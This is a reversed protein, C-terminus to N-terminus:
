GIMRSKALQAEAVPKYTIRHHMCIGYQLLAQAHVKTGYGVNTHWSYQPFEFALQKMLNDRHVKAIISAAAISMSISDGKIIDVSPISFKKKYNGDILMFTPSAPLSVLAREIAVFTAKNIGLIEIEEVSASGIGCIHNQMLENSIKDRLDETLKKSDKIGKTIKDRNIIVAGVVVPGAWAGRGVEDVGVIIRGPHQDELSLNPTNKNTYKTM